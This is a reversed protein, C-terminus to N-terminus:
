STDRGNVLAEAAYFRNFDFKEGSRVITGPYIKIFRNVEAEFRARGDSTALNFGKGFPNMVAERVETKTVGEAAAENYFLRDWAEYRFWGYTSFIDLPSWKNLISYHGAPTQDAM